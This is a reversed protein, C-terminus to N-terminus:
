TGDATDTAPDQADPGETPKEERAEEARDGPETEGAPEAVPLKGLLSLIEEGYATAKAEGVGEVRRLAELSAPRARALAALQRNTFLVYPPRGERKARANRWDRLADFPAREEKALEARWDVKAGRPRGSGGPPDVERYSVLLAWVPVREHVFFHDHVDLVEKDKQFEQLDADDFGAGGPDYPYHFIKLKM